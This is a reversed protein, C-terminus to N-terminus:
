NGDKLFLIYDFFKSIALFKWGPFLYNWRFIEFHDPTEMTPFTFRMPFNRFLRSNGDKSFPIEASFKSIDPTKMRPFPFRMSSKPITFNHWCPRQFFGFIEMTFALNNRMARITQDPAMRDTQHLKGDIRTVTYNGRIHVYLCRKEQAAAWLGQWISCPSMMKKKKYSRTRSRVGCSHKHYYICHFPSSTCGGGGGGAGPQASKEM